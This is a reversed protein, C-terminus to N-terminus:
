STHFSFNLIYSLFISFFYSTCYAQQQFTCYASYVHIHLMNDLFHAVTSLTWNWFINTIHLISDLRHANINENSWTHLSKMSAAYLPHAQVYSDMDSHKRPGTLAAMKLCSSVNRKLNKNRLFNTTRPLTPWLGVQEGWTGPPTCTRSPHCM